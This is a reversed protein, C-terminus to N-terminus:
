HATCRAPHSEGGGAIAAPGFAVGGAPGHHVEFRCRLDHVIRQGDLEDQPLAHTLWLRYGAPALPPLQDPLGHEGDRDDLQDHGSCRQGDCGMNSENLGGIRDEGLVAEPRARCSAIGPGFTRLSAPIRRRYLNDQGAMPPRHPPTPEVPRGHIASAAPNLVPRRSWCIEFGQM